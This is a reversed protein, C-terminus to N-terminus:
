WPNYISTCGNRYYITNMKDKGYYRAFIPEKGISVRIIPKIKSFLQPITYREGNYIIKLDKNCGVFANSEIQTLKDTFVVEELSDCYEFAFSGLYSVKPLAIKKLYIQNSFGREEVTEASPAEFQTKEILHGLSQETIEKDKFIEISSFLSKDSHNIKIAKGFPKLADPISFPQRSAIPRQIPSNDHINFHVPRTRIEYNEGRCIHNESPTTKRTCLASPASALISLASIAIASSKKFNMKM